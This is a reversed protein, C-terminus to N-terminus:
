EVESFVQVAIEDIADGYSELDSNLKGLQHSAYYATQTASDAKNAAQNAKDQVINLTEQLQHIAEEIVPDVRKEFKAVTCDDDDVEVSLLNYGYFVAIPPTDIDETITIDQNLLGAAMAIDCQLLLMLKNETSKYDLVILSNNVLM